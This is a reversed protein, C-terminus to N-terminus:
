APAVIEEHPVPSPAMDRRWPTRGALVDSEHVIESVYEEQRYAMVHVGAVGRIARVQQIMEICLRKGEVKQNQAGDLRTIVHDPIYVGPVNARM